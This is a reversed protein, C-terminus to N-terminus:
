QFSDVADTENDFVEFVTILQTIMLVDRVKPPPNLLKLRGGRNSAVTHASVLEGIGSSAIDTVGALNLVLKTEGQNLADHVANRLEIEGAGIVVRGQLDLLTVGREQRVSVKM